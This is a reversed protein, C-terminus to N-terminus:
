LPPEIVPVEAPVQVPDDETEPPVISKVIVSGAETQFTVPFESSVVSM